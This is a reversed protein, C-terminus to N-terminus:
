RLARINAANLNKSMAQAYGGLYAGFAHFTVRYYRRIHHIAPLEALMRAPSDSAIAAVAAPM